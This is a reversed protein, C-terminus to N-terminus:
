SLRSASAPIDADTIPSDFASGLYEKLAATTRSLAHATPVFDGADIPAYRVLRGAGVPHVTLGTARFLETARKTHYASTVLLIEKAPIQALLKASFYANEKTNQARNEVTIADGPVGSEILLERMDDAETRTTGDAREYAIGSTVIIRAAKQLKFLKAATAIRSGGLEEPPFNVDTYLAVTGGLVVIVPATPEDALPRAETFAELKQLATNAVLPTSALALVLLGFAAIVRACRPRRVGFVAVLALCFLAVSLPSCATQLLKRFFYM